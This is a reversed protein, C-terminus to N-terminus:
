RCLWLSCAPFLGPLALLAPGNGALQRCPPPCPPPDAKTQPPLEPPNAPTRFRTYQKRLRRRQTSFLCLSCSSLIGLYIRLLEPTCKSAFAPPASFQRPYM